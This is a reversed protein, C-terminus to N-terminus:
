RAFHLESRLFGVSAWGQIARKGSLAKTGQRSIKMLKNASLEKAACLAVFGSRHVIIGPFPNIKLMIDVDELLKDAQVANILDQVLSAALTVVLFARPAAGHQLTIRQMVSLGVPMAGLGFGADGAQVVGDQPLGLSKQWARVAAATGSGFRGDM